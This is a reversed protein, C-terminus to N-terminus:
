PKAAAYPPYLSAPPALGDPVASQRDPSHGHGWRRMDWRGNELALVHVGGDDSNYIWLRNADDWLWYIRLHPLFETEIKWKTKSRLDRIAIDWGPSPSSFRAEYAGDSSRAPNQQNPPRTAKPLVMGIVVLLPLPSLYAAIRPLPRLYRRREVGFRVALQPLASFALYGLTLPVLVLLGLLHSGVAGLGFFVLGNLMVLFVGSPRPPKRTGSAAANEEPVYLFASLRSM